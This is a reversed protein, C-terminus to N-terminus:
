KLTNRWDFDNDIDGREREESAELIANHIDENSINRIEKSILYDYNVDNLNEGEDVMEKLCRLLILKGFSIFNEERETFMM